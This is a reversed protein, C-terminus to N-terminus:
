QYVVEFAVSIGIDVSHSLYALIWCLRLLTRRIKARPLRSSLPSLLKGAGRGQGSARPGRPAALWALPQIHLCLRVVASYAWM